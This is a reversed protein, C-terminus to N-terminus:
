AVADSIEEESSPEEADGSHELAAQTIIRDWEAVREWIARASGMLQEVADWTQQRDSNPHDYVHKLLGGQHRLELCMAKAEAMFAIWSRDPTRRGDMCRRGYESVGMGALDAKRVQEDKWEPTCRITVTESLERKETGVRKPAGDPYKRPRGRRPAPDGAADSAVKDEAPLKQASTTGKAM